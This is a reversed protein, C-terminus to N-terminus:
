IHQRSRRMLRAERDQGSKALNYYRTTPKVFSVDTRLPNPLPYIIWCLSQMFSTCNIRLLSRMAPTHRTLRVPKVVHGRQPTQRQDGNVMIDTGSTNLDSYVTFSCSPRLFRQTTPTARRLQSMPITSPGVNGSDHTLRGTPAVHGNESLVYTFASICWAGLRHYPETGYGEGHIHGQTKLGLRM